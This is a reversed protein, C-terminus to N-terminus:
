RQPPCILEEPLVRGPSAPVLASGRDLVRRLRPLLLCAHHHAWAAPGPRGGELAGPERRNAALALGDGGRPPLPLAPAHAEAEGQGPRPRHQSRFLTTYPFLTSRPPRRIM